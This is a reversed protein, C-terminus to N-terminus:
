GGQALVGITLREDQCVSTIHTPARQVAPASLDLSPHPLSGAAATLATVDGQVSAPVPGKGLDLVQVAVAQSVAKAQDATLRHAAAQDKEWQDLTLIESEAACVASLDWKAADAALVPPRTPSVTVTVTARPAPATTCGSLVLAASGLALLGLFRKV